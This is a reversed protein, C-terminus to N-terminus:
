RAHPKAGRRPKEMFVPDQRSRMLGLVGILGLLVYPAELLYAGMITTSSLGLNLLPAVLEAISAYVVALPFVGKAGKIAMFVLVVTFTDVFLAFTRELIPAGILAPGLAYQASLAQQIAPDLTGFFSPNMVLELVGLFNNFGLAIAEVCAFGLGFGVADMYSAGFLRFRRAWIWTFGSDFLGTQLGVYLGYAAASGVASVGQVAGAVSPTVFIDMTAKMVTVSLWTVGGLGFIKWSVGTVRKWYLVPLMGVAMM